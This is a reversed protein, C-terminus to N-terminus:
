PTGHVLDVLFHGFGLVHVEDVVGLVQLGADVHSHEVGVEQFEESDGRPVHNGDTVDREDGIEKVESHHTIHAPDLRNHVHDEPVAGPSDNLVSQMPKYEMTFIMQRFSSKPKSEVVRNMADMMGKRHIRASQYERRGSTVQEIEEKEVRQKRRQDVSFMDEIRKPTSGQCTVKYIVHNVIENM